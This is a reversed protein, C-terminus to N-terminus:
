GQDPAAAVVLDRAIADDDSLVVHKSQAGLRRRAHRLYRDFTGRPVITV